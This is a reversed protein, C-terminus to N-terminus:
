YFKRKSLDLLRAFATKNDDNIKKEKLQDIFQLTEYYNEAKNLFDIASNYKSIDNDFIERMFLIKENVGIASRIDSIRNSQMRAALSNDPTNQYVDAVTKSPHFMDATSKAATKSPQFSPMQPMEQQPVTEAPTNKERLFPNEVTKEIVPGPTEFTEAQLEPETDAAMAPVTGSFIMSAPEQNKLVPTKDPIKESAVPMQHVKDYLQRLDNMLIDKEIRSIGRQGRGASNWDANIKELLAQIEHAFFKENM